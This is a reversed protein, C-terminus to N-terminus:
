AIPHHTTDQHSIVQVEFVGGEMALTQMSTTAAQTLKTTAQQRQISLRQAASLWVAQLQECKIELTAIDQDKQALTSLQDCLAKYHNFLDEINVHHKRAMAHLTELRNEVQQLRETDLEIHEYYHSLETAAEQLTICSEELMTIIPSLREDITILESLNRARAAPLRIRM